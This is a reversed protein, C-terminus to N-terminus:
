ENYHMITKTSLQENQCGNPVFTFLTTWLSADSHIKPTEKFLMIQICAKHQIQGDRNTVPRSQHGHTTNPM